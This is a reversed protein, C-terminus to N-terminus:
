NDATASDYDRNPVVMVNDMIQAKLNRIVARTVKTVMSDGVLVSKMYTYSSELTYTEDEGENILEISVLGPTAIPTRVSMIFEGDRQDRVGIVEAVEGGFVVTTAESLGSGKIFVVQGASTYGKAPYIDTVSIM